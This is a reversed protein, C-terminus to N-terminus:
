IISNNKQQLSQTVIMKIVQLMCNELSEAGYSYRVTYVNCLKEKKPKTEREIM